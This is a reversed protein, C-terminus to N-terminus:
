SLYTAFFQTYYAQMTFIVVVRKIVCHGDSYKCRVNLAQITNNTHKYQITQISINNQNSNLRRVFFIVDMIFCKDISPQCYHQHVVM